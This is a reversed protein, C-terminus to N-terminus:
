IPLITCAYGKFLEFLYRYAHINYDSANGYRYDSNFEICYMATVFEQIVFLLHYEVTTTYYCLTNSSHKSAASYTSTSTM